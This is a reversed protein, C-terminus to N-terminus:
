LNPKEIEQWKKPPPSTKANKKRSTKTKSHNGPEIVKQKEAKQQGQKQAKGVERSKAKGAERSKRSQQKEAKRSKAKGAEKQRKKAENM